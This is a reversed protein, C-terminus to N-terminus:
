GVEVKRTDSLLVGWVAPSTTVPKQHFKGPLASPNHDEVPPPDDVEVSILSVADRTDIAGALVPESVRPLETEGTM